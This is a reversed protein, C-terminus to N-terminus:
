TYRFRLRKRKPLSGGMPAAKKTALEDSHSLNKSVTLLVIISRSKQSLAVFFTAAALPPL